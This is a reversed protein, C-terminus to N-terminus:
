KLFDNKRREDCKKKKRANVVLCSMKIQHSTIAGCDDEMFADDNSM